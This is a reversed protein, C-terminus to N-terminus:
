YPQTMLQNLPSGKNNLRGVQVRTSRSARAYVCMCVRAYRFMGWRRTHHLSKFDYIYIYLYDYVRRREPIPGCRDLTNQCSLVYSDHKIHMIILLLMCLMM